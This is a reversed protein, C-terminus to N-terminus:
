ITSTASAGQTAGRTLHRAVNGGCRWGSNALFAALTLWPLTSWAVWRPLLEATSVGHWWPLGGCITDYFAFLFVASAATIAAFWRPSALVLLAAFWVLYQAGIGPAFVFFAAWICLLTAPMEGPPLTRRCWAFWFAAGIIVLKLASMIALQASTLHQFGVPAFHPSGTAHLLWTVGWSGWNSNYGLVNRLFVEPEALLPVSWGALITVSAALFFPGAKRRHLWFFLFAPALLLPIIKVQCALGFLAGCWAARGRECERAALLLLWALVSDVNGHFGSIMFNVPSLAFLLVAWVPPWGNERWRWLAGVALFDAIIGPLRLLWNFAFGHGVGYAAACFWGVLPTHNFEATARYQALLGHEHIFRGFNYFTDVDNTGLTVAACCLKVLLALLATSFIAARLTVRRAASEQANGRASGLGPLGRADVVATGALGDM